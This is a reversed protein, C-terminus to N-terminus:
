LRFTKLQGRVTSEQFRIVHWSDPGGYTHTTVLTGVLTRHIEDAKRM